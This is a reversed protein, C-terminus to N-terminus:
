KSGNISPLSESPAGAAFDCNGGSITYPASLVIPYPPFTGPDDYAWIDMARTPLNLKVSETKFIDALYGGITGRNGLMEELTVGDCTWDWVGYVNGDMDLNLEFSDCFDVFEFCFAHAPSSALAMSGIAVTAFGSVIAKRLRKTNM